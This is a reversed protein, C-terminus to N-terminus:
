AEVAGFLRAATEDDMPRRWVGRDNPAIGFETPDAMVGGEGKAWLFDITSARATLHAMGDPSSSWPVRAVCHQLEGGFEAGCSIRGLRPNDTCKSM